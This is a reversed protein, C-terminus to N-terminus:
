YACSVSYGDSPRYQDDRCLERGLLVRSDLAERGGNVADLVDQGGRVSANVAESAEGDLDDESRKVAGDDEGGELEGM